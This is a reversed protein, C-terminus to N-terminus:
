SLDPIIFVTTHHDRKTAVSAAKAIDVTSIVGTEQNAETGKHWSGGVPLRMLSDSSGFVAEGKGEWYFVFRNYCHSFSILFQTTENNHKVSTETFGVVDTIGHKHSASFLYLRGPGRAKVIIGNGNKFLTDPLACPSFPTIVM